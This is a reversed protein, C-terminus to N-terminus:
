RFRCSDREQCTQVFRRRAVQRIASPKTYPLSAAGGLDVRARRHRQLYAKRDEGDAPTPEYIM